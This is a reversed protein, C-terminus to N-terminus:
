VKKKVGRRAPLLSKVSLPAPGTHEGADLDWFGAELPRIGPNEDHPQSVPFDAVPRSSAPEGQEMSQTHIQTLGSMNITEFRDRM